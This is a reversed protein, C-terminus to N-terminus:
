EAKPSFKHLTSVSYSNRANGKISKQKKDTSGYKVGFNTLHM